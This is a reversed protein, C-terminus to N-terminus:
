VKVFPCVFCLAQFSLMCKALAAKLQPTRHVLNNIDIRTISRNTFEPLSALWAYDPGRTLLSSEITEYDNSTFV